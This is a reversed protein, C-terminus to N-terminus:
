VIGELHVLHKMELLVSDCCVLGLTRSVTEEGM